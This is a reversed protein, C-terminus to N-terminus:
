EGLEQSRQTAAQVADMVIAHFANRQLVHLAAIATGGPSTVQDKLAAPHEGSVQALRASGRVTQMALRRAVDRSLGVRVGADSMAEVLQFVYMPGTGSLGTAADMLYEPVVEVLGVSEFIERALAVHEATAHTGSSVVTAGMGVTVSLNPMCRVVPVNGTYYEIFRCSIGAAISIVIQDDRLADRLETLAGKIIQPKVGLIIIDADKCADRNSTIAPVGLDESLRRAKAPDPNTAVVKSADTWGSELLGRVIASGMNGCGIVAVRKSM